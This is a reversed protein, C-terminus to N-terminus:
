RDNFLTPLFLLSAVWLTHRSRFNSPKTRASCGALESVATVRWDQRLVWKGLVNTSRTHVSQFFYFNPRERTKRVANAKEFVQRQVFSCHNCYRWRGHYCLNKEWDLNQLWVPLCPRWLDPSCWFWCFNILLKGQVALIRFRLPDPFQFWRLWFIACGILQLKWLSLHPYQLPQIHVSSFYILSQLFSTSHVPHHLLIHVFCPDAMISILNRDLVVAIAVSLWRTKMM